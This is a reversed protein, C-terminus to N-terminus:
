IYVYKLTYHKQVKCKQFLKCDTNNNLIKNDTEMDFRVQAYRTIGTNGTNTLM